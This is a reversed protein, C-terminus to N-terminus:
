ASPEVRMDPLDLIEMIRAPGSLDTRLVATADLSRAYDALALMSRHGIFDLCSADIVIEGAAPQLAARQLTLPFLHLNTLDLEGGLFTAARTSAHLRFPASGDNALCLHDYPACGRATGIMGSVHVRSM